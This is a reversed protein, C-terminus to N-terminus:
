ISNWIREPDYLKRKARGVFPKPELYNLGDEFAAVTDFGIPRTLRPLSDALCLCNELGVGTEFVSSLVVQGAVPELKKALGAVDGMLASKIVLPGSWAGPELWRAGELGNLSEDLAIAIIGSREMLQAMVAEEGIALPQELYDVKGYFAGLFELWQELQASSLSGNADLRLTVGAPLSELLTRATAIEEDIAEVGIKWKLSRYGAASKELALPLGAKGAPLLASVPYDCTPVAAGSRGNRGSASLGFACCPLDVPVPLDPQKTLRELFDGAAAVTETGFEPIPAVEGYGLWGDQELRLLFGERWIWEGRATRLPQRFRRRYPKITIQANM